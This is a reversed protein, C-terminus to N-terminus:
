FIKKEFIKQFFFQLIQLFWDWGATGLSHPEDERWGQISPKIMILGPFFRQDRSLRGAVFHPM